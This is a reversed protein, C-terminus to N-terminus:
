HHMTVTNITYLYSKNCKRHLSTQLAFFPWWRSLSFPTDNTNRICFRRALCITPGASTSGYIHLLDKATASHCFVHPATQQEKPKSPALCDRLQSSSRYPAAQKQLCWSSFCTSLLTDSYVMQEGDPEARRLFKRERVESLIVMSESSSSLRSDVKPERSGGADVSGCTEWPLDEAGCGCMRMCSSSFSRTQSRSSDLPLDSNSTDLSSCHVRRSFFTRIEENRLRWWSNTGEESIFIVIHEAVIYIAQHIGESDFM